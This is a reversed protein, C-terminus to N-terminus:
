KTGGKKTSADYRWLVALLGKFESDFEPTAGYEGTATLELSPGLDYGLSLTATTASDEGDIEEDYALYEASLAARVPGLPATVYGRFEQYRNEAEDGDMQRYGGGATIGNGVWDIAVGFAQANGAIDYNYAIYDGSLRFGRDFLLEIEGAIRSLKEDAEPGELVFAPHV